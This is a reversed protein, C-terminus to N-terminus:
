EIEPIEEDEEMTFPISYSSQGRLRQGDIEIIEAYLPSKVVFDGLSVHYGVVPGHHLFDKGSWEIREVGTKKDPHFVLTKEDLNKFLFRAVLPARELFLQNPMGYKILLIQGKYDEDQLPDPSLTLTSPLNRKDVLFHEVELGTRNCGVLFFLFVFLRQVL